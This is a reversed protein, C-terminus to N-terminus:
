VNKEDAHEEDEEEEDRLVGHQCGATTAVAVPVFVVARTHATYM